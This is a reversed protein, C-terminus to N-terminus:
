REDGLGRKTPKGAVFGYLPLVMTATRASGGCQGCTGGGSRPYFRRCRGCVAYLEEPLARDPFRRAGESVWLEGAAVVGSGPAFEAMAIRLDRELEIRNGGELHETQLPVIDVPFGYKPLVTYSALYGLLYRSRLTNLINRYHDAKKGSTKGMEQERMAADILAQYTDEDARVNAEAISLPGPLLGAERAEDTDERVLEKVWSWDEIGLPDHLERPFTERLEERLKDDREDLYARFLQAATPSNDRADDRTNLFFNGVTRWAQSDAPLRERFFRSLAVAHVHRRAIRVNLDAVRPVPVRGAVLEEPRAVMQQDHPRHQAFTVVLAAAERRRGARGARQVYNAVTPPINRMFVAQLDGLDVGLEFTTSCSLVNIEGRVFRDQIRAAEEPTWQATHEEVRMEPGPPEQYTRRYHNDEDPNDAVMTGECRMTPCVGAVSGPRRVGCRNCVVIGGPPAFEWRDPNVQYLIGLRRDDFRRLLDAAPSGHGVLLNDWTWELLSIVTARDAQHGLRTLLRELYDFRASRATTNAPLWAEVGRQPDSGNRRIYANRSRPRFVEDAPDIDKGLALIGRDLLQGVLTEVLTWSEDDGLAALGAPM